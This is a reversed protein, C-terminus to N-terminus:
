RSGYRRRRDSLSKYVFEFKSVLAQESYKVRVTNFLREDLGTEITAQIDKALNDRTSTIIDLKLPNTLAVVPMHCAIAELFSIPNVETLSTSVFVAGRSYLTPMQSKPVIGAFEIGDTLGERKILAHLYQSYKSQDMGSLGSSVPDLDGVVILKYQPDNKFLKKFAPLIIDLRKIERFGGVFIISKPERKVDRPAFLDTDIWNSILYVRKAIKAFFDYEIKNITIIADCMVIHIRRTLMKRLHLMTSTDAKCAKEDLNQCLQGNLIRNNRPCSYVYSHHSNIVPIRFFIGIIKSLYFDYFSHSHIVDPKENSIVRAIYIGFSLIEKLFVLKNRLEGLRTYKHQYIKVRSPNENIRDNTILFVDHGRKMLASALSQLHTGIGFNTTAHESILCIKVDDM